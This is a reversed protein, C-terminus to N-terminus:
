TAPGIDKATVRTFQRAGDVEIADLVRYRRGGSDIVHGTTIDAPKTGTSWRFWFLDTPVNETQAGAKISLGHVPERKCWRTIGASYSETIGFSANAADTRLRIQGRRNLSGAGLSM